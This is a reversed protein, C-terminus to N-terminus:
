PLRGLFATVLSEARDSGLSIAATALDLGAQQRGGSPWRLVDLLLGPEWTVPVACQFLAGARTRRQSIGVAKRGRCTVEGPGLGAFCVRDSWESRALAGRWVEGGTLGVDGLAAAWVEGLWWCARGVDADWLPDGTPVVVDIWVVLGPGVMVAGGGSRRRVVDVGLRSAAERDVHADPQGSGLVLATGASGLVRVRRALAGFGDPGLVAASGAHLEGAPGHQDEVRWHPSM